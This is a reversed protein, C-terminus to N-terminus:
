RVNALALVVKLMRLLSSQARTFELSLLPFFFSFIVSFEPVKLFPPNM